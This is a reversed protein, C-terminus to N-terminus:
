PSLLTNPRPDIKWNEDLSKNIELIMDRWSNPELLLIIGYWYQKRFYHPHLEIPNYIICKKQYKTLINEIKIKTTDSEKKAREKSENGYFYKVLYSYPPYSFDKRKKLDNRYFFDPSSLSKWFAHEPNKTQIFFQSTFTRNYQIKQITHWLQEESGFEPLTLFLDLNLCVTLTIKKWNLFPFAIDTGIIIKKQETKMLEIRENEPIDSDLRIICTNLDLLKRLTNEIQETGYGRLDLIKTQCKPCLLPVPEKKKCYHCHLSKDNEHYIRPLTCNPCSDKYGCAFCSISSASGRRNLYLFVDGESHAIEEQVKTSLFYDAKHGIIETKLDILSPSEKKPIPIIGIDKETINEGEKFSYIKKYINHYSESSPHSSMLTIKANSLPAKLLAIDKVHFRPSGEEHKHGREEESEIVIQSLHFFPLFISSRTGIVIDIQGNRIKQWRSFKEKESLESHWITCNQQQSETLNEFINQILHIEPVVILTQHTSFSQLLIKQEDNDCYGKFIVKKNESINEKAFPFLEISKIKRKQLPPLSMELTPGLAVNYLVAIEILMKIENKSLFPIPHIINEIEKAKEAFVSSTELSLVLGFVKSKRFPITVIQGVEISTKIEEPIKYDCIELSKPLRKLPAIRAFMVM